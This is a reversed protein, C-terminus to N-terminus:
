LNISRLYEKIAQQVAEESNHKLSWGLAQIKEITAYRDLEKNEKEKVSSFNAKNM